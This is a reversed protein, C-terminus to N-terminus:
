IEIELTQAELWAPLVHTVGCRCSRDADTPVALHRLVEKVARRIENHIRVAVALLEVVEQRTGARRCAALASAILGPGDEMLSLSENLRKQRSRRMERRRPDNLDYTAATYVADSDTEVPLLYAGSVFFHSGWAHTCPNLLKRGLPDVAPTKWRNENCFRCCYFCNDYSGAQGPDASVPSFHEIGM